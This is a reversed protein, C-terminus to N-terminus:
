LVGIGAGYLVPENTTTADSRNQRVSTEVANWNTATLVSLLILFICM